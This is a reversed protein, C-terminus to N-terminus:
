SARVADLTMPESNVPQQAGNVAREMPKEVAPSNSRKASM